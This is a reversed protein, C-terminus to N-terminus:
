FVETSEGSPIAKICESGTGWVYPMPQSDTRILLCMSMFWSGPTALKWVENNKSGSFRTPTITPGIHHIRQVSKRRGRTRRRPISCGGAAHSFANQVQCGFLGQGILAQTYGQQGSDKIKCDYHQGDKEAYGQGPNRSPVMPQDLAFVLSM